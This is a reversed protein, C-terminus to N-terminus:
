GLREKIILFEQTHRSWLSYFGWSWKFLFRIWIQKYESYICNGLSSNFATSLIKIKIFGHLNKLMLVAYMEHFPCKQSVNNTGAAWSVVLWHQLLGSWVPISSLIKSLKVIVGSKSRLANGIAPRQFRFFWEISVWTSTLELSYVSWPRASTWFSCSGPSLQKGKWNGVPMEMARQSIPVLQTVRQHRPKEEKGKENNERSIM